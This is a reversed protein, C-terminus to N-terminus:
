SSSHVSRQPSRVPLSHSSRRTPRDTGTPVSLVEGAAVAYARRKIRLDAGSQSAIAATAAASTAASDGAWSTRDDYTHGGRVDTLIGAGFVPQYPTNGNAFRTGAEISTRNGQPREGGSRDLPDAVTSAVARCGRLVSASRTASARWDISTLTPRDSTAFIGQGADHGSKTPTRPPSSCM